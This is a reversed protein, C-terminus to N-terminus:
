VTSRMYRSRPLSLVTPGSSHAGRRAARALSRPLWAATVLGLVVLSAAIGWAASTISGGPMAFAATVPVAIAFGRLLSWVLPLHARGLMQYAYNLTLALASFPYALAVVQQYRLGSEVVAPSAGFLEFWASPSAVLALALISTGLTVIGAAVWCIRVLEAHRGAGRAEGGLTLIASGIGYILVALLQELRSALGFAALADTGFRAWLVSLVMLVGRTVVYTALTPMAIRGIERMDARDLRLATLRLSLGGRGGRLYFAGLLASAFFGIVTALGAGAVGMAPIGFLGDILIPNLLANVASSVLLMVAAAMVRKEARLINSMTLCIAIVPAGLFIPRAFSLAAELVVEDSAIRAFLSRGAFVFTLALAVALGIALALASGVARQAGRKDGAGIRVSLVVSLGVGLGGGFAMILLLYVPFVLSAGALTASGLGTVYYTDVLLAAGSLLMTLTSPLAFRLVRLTLEWTSPGALRGPAADGALGLFPSARVLREEIFGAPIGRLARDAPHTTTL